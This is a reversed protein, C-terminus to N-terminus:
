NGPLKCAGFAKGQACSLVEIPKTTGRNYGVIYSGSNDACNAEIYVASESAKEMTRTERVVCSSNDKFSKIDKTIQPYGPDKKTFSCRYGQAEAIACPYVVGSAAGKFEIVAGDPRDNCKLEVIEKDKVGFIGYQAVDCKFGVKEALRSYLGNQETKAARSDTMTCGGGVFEADACAVTKGNKGDSLQELMYGSGDQCSVEFWSAGTTTALVYRKDKVACTKGSSAVLADVVALQSARDTLQCARTDTADFSICSNAKVDASLNAPAATELVFGNGPGCAVEIYTKTPSAGIYRYGTTACTKGAKTLYPTIQAQLNANGALKCKLPSDIEKDGAKIKKEADFCPFLSATPKAPDQGVIYGLGQDCAVEFYNTKTKADAVVFRAETITCSLGAAKALAPAEAMGRDRDKQSIAGAVEKEKKKGQAVTVGSTAFMALIVAAAIGYRNRSM